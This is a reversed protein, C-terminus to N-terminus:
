KCAIITYRSILIISVGGERKGKDKLLICDDYDVKRKHIKRENAKLVFENKKTDREKKREIENGRKEKTERM